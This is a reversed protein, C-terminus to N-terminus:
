SAAAELEDGTIGVKDGGNSSLQDELTLRDRQDGHKTTQM